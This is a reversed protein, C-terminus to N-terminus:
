WARRGWECGMSQARKRCRSGLARELVLQLCERTRRGTQGGVHTSHVAPLVPSTLSLSQPISETAEGRLQPSTLAQLSPSLAPPCPM